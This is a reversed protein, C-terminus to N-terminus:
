DLLFIVPQLPLSLVIQLQSQSPFLPSTFYVTRSINLTLPFPAPPLLLAVLRKLFSNAFEPWASNSQKQVLEAPISKRAIGKIKCTQVVLDWVLQRLSCGLDVSYGDIEGLM